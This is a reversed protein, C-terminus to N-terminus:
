PRQHPRYTPAEPEFLRLLPQLEVALVELAMRTIVAKPVAAASSPKKSTMDDTDTAKPTPNGALIETSPRGAVGLDEHRLARSPATFRAPGQRRGEEPAM